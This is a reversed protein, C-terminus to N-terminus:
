GSPLLKRVQAAEATRGCVDLASAVLVRPDKPSYRLARAREAAACTAAHDGAAMTAQLVLDFAEPTARVALNKQALPLATKAEGIGLYFRAAHDAFAAPISALMATFGDKARQRMRTADDARGAEAYARALQGAYEPDDSRAVIPELLAIARGAPELGALHATAHAYFPLRKVAAELFPKARRDDGERQWMLGQQFDHWALPFPSVDRYHARAEDFRRTAEDTLGMEGLLAGLAGLSTVDHRAAARRERLARAADYKGTAQLIGARANDVASPDAGRKAAEDLDQLAEDFRHLASRGNARAIWARPDSAHAKVADEGIALAREYDAIRGTFDARQTLLGALSVHIDLDGPFQKARREQSRIQGDLNGLAISADTSRRALAPAPPPASVGARAPLPRERSCGAALALAGVALLLVARRM